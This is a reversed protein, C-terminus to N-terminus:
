PGLRVPGVELREHVFANVNGGLEFIGVITKELKFTHQRGLLDLVGVSEVGVAIANTADQLAPELGVGGYASERAEHGEHPLVEGGAGQLRELEGDEGMFALNPGEGITAIRATENDRRNALEDAQDCTSRVLAGVAGIDGIRGQEFVEPVEDELLERARVEVPVIDLREQSSSLSTRQDREETTWM